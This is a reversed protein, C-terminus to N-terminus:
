PKAPPPVKRLAPPLMQDIEDESFTLEETIKLAKQAAKKAGSSSKPASAYIETLRIELEDRRKRADEISIARARLDTILSIQTSGASQLRSATSRHKESEAAANSGQMYANAIVLFTSEIGAWLERNHAKAADGFFATFIGGSTLASLGTQIWRMRNFDKSKMEASKEHTKQAYSLRAFTERLQAELLDHANEAQSVQDM